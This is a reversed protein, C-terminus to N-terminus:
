KYFVCWYQAVFVCHRVSLKVIERGEERDLALNSDHRTARSPQTQTSSRRLNNIETPSVMKMFLM